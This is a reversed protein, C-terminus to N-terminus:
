RIKNGYYIWQYVKETENFFDELPGGKSVSFTTMEDQKQYGLETLHAEIVSAKFQWRHPEPIKSRGSFKEFLIYSGLLTAGPKVFSDVKDLLFTESEFAYNSSGSIDLLMDISQLKLAMSEFDACLYLVKCKPATREIIHKLWRLTKLNYDVAVYISEEPFADIFHRMFFGYGTGLEVAVSAGIKSFDVHRKTWELSLNLKQLYELSTTAIYEDIFWDQNHSADSADSEITHPDTNRTGEGILIGDSIEMGHGCVCKITGNMITRNQITGDTFQYATHCHPCQFIHLADIPVGSSATSEEPERKMAELAHALAISMDDLRKKEQEIQHLRNEFYAKYTTRRDYDTLKGIRRFLMLKQIEALTFGISKLYIIEDLEGQCTDDFTYQGGTKEPILLGLDMYHRITDISTSNRKAFVGIRM